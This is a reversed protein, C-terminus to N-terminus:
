PDLGVSQFIAPGVSGLATNLAAAVAAPGGSFNIGIVTDNPNATATNPLPLATPDDVRVITVSHQVNNGDTYSLQITNGNSLGSIDADFGSSTGATVPTAATTTDSLASSMQAALADLQNQAQPLVDDRMSLYGGIEGSQIGGDAVLDTTTGSPSTLTITSLESKTPDANWLQTPNITGSATFSLQSPGAQGM